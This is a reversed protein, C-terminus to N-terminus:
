QRAAVRQVAFVEVFTVHLLPCRTRVLYKLRSRESGACTDGVVRQVYALIPIAVSGAGAVKELVNFTREANGVVNQHGSM